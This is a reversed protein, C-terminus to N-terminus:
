VRRDLRAGPANPDVWQPDLSDLGGHRLASEMVDTMTRENAPIRNSLTPQSYLRGVAELWAGTLAASAIDM